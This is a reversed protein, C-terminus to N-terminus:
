LPKLLQIFDTSINCQQYSPIMKCLFINGIVKKEAEPKYQTLDPNFKQHHWLKQKLKDYKGVRCQDSLNSKRKINKKLLM